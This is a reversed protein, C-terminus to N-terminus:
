FSRHPWSARGWGGIRPKWGAPGHEARQGGEPQHLAICQRVPQLRSLGRRVVGRVFGGVADDRSEVQAALAPGADLGDCAAHCARDICADSPQPPALAAGILLRMCM